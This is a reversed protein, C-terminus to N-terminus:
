KFVNKVVSSFIRLCDDMEAASTNLPPIFRITEYISTTLLLLDKEVCGTTIKSVTGAPAGIFEIASMLGLGRVNMPVNPLEKQLNNLGNRLQEGRDLANQLMNEERIADITANAAACAVANANYTGGVSGLSQKQMLSRSAAIGSLPFGSAIGKAMILVDPRVGFHEIAFFKGTRGFGSQVEDFVLLIGERDCIQRLGDLFSKPPVVYGGEGLVPELIIAAVNSPTVQKKFMQELQALPSGCCGSAPRTQCHCCYAFPMVHVGSMGPVCGTRYIAKSNTLSATCFGRGHFSGDMTIIESRGTAVRALKIANEVAENGSNAFFFCDLSKDPMIELLRQQLNILPTHPGMYLQSHIITGVQKRAAEVVKPHCHGTNCVGIGTAYDLVKRGNEFELYSGQAKKVPDKFFSLLGLGPHMHQKSQEFATSYCRVSSRAIRRTLMQELGM